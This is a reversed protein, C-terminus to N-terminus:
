VEEVTKKSKNREIWRKKTENNEDWMAQAKEIIQKAIENEDYAFHWICNDRGVDERAKNFYKSAFQEMLDGDNLIETLVEDSVAAYNKNSSRWTTLYEHSDSLDRRNTAILYAKKQELTKYKPPFDTKMINMLMTIDFSEEPTIDDLMYDHFKDYKEAYKLIPYINGNRYEKAIRRAKCQEDIDCTKVFIFGVAPIAIIMTIFFAILDGM